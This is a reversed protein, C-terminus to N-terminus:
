KRGTILIKVIESAAVLGEAAPVFSNSPPVPRGTVPSVEVPGAPEKPPEESWVCHVLDTGEASLIGESRLKKRIARALPDGKTQTLKGVKFATPDCKGAAGMCVMLPTRLAICRRILEVKAAVTDICDAVFDFETLDVSDANEPLYFLRRAVVRCDPNIDAIRQAAVDVKYKGISSRLAVLQRNLNSEAVIDNDFLHLEGIGSRALAEVLHGGVGGIGFVAIKAASLHRMAEEGFLM